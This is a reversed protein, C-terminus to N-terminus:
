RSPWDIRTVESQEFLSTIPQLSTTTNHAASNDYVYIHDFGVLLHFEIWEKLRESTDSVSRVNGRTAFTESAWLCAVLVHKKETSSNDQENAATDDITETNTSMEKTPQHPSCIPINAWRGSQEVLPLTHNTGFKVNPDFQSDERFMEPNIYREPPFRVSKIKLVINLIIM